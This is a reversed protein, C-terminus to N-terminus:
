RRLYEVVHKMNSVDKKKIIFWARVRDTQEECALALELYLKSKDPKIPEVPKYHNIIQILGELQKFDIKNRHKFVRLSGYTVGLHEALQKLTIKFAMNLLEIFGLSFSDNKYLFGM